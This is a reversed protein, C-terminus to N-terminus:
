CHQQSASLCRCLRGREARSSLWRALLLLCFTRGMVNLRLTHGLLFAVREMNSGQLRRRIASLHRLDSSGRMSTLRDVVLRM